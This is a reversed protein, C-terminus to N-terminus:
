ESPRQPTPELPALDYDRLAFAASKLAECMIRISKGRDRARTPLRWDDEIRRALAITNALQGYMNM